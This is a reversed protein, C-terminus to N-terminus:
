PNIAPAALILFEWLPVGRTKYYDATWVLGHAQINDAIQQSLPYFTSGTM